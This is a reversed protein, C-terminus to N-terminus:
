GKKKQWIVKDKFNSDKYFEYIIIFLVIIGLFSMLFCDILDSVVLIGERLYLFLASFFGITFWAIIILIWFLTM